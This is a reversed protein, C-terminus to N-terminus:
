AKEHLIADLDHDVASLHRVRPREVLRGAMSVMRVDRLVELNELPNGEVVIMDASKGPEISGTVDDIHLLRANGLTATHLALTADAGVLEHFYVVERWMDYHTVYPCGSDTGLGVPIGAALAQKSAEVIGRFVVDANLQVIETSHTKSRDLRALPIAPSVTTTLSSARGVGNHKFLSIIEDDMPAGHEITDVGAKLAIRVGETSEVHVACPLGLKHAEDVIASAMELSMRVVGPEGPKEADFVGGTVFLKVLDAKHAYLERVFARADEPTESLHAILGRGHGKPPTIGWGSCLLRPGLYRGDRISDRIQLDAWVPDGVGRVTTVGSNLESFVGNQIRRRLWARGIPNGTVKDIIDSAGSSSYAKGSGCFHVHMNILGPLLHRGQLDIVRLGAPVDTTSTPGIHSITGDEAVIVTMDPQVTMHETGDLLSAHVFAFAM